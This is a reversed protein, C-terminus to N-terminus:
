EFLKGQTAAAAERRFRRITAQPLNYAAALDATSRTDGAAIVRRAGVQDGALRM